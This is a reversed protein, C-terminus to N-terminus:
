ATAPEVSFYKKNLFIDKMALMRMIMLGENFYQVAVSFLLNGPFKRLAEKM